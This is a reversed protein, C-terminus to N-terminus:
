RGIEEIVSNKLRTAGRHVFAWGTKNSLITKGDVAQDAEPDRATLKHSHLPALTLFGGANSEDIRGVFARCANMAIRFASSEIDASRHTL